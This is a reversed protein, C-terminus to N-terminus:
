LIEHWWPVYFVPMFDHWNFFFSFVTHIVPSMIIAVPIYFLLESKKMRLVLPPLVFTVFAPIGYFIWWPLNKGYTIRAFIMGGVVAIISLLIIKFVPKKTRKRMTLLLVSVFVILAVLMNILFKVIDNM